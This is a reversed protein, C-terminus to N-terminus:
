VKLVYVIDEKTTLLHCTIILLVKYCQSGGACYNEAGVCPISDLFILILIGFCKPKDTACKFPKQQEETPPQPAAVVNDKCNVGSCTKDCM